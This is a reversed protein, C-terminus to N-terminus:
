FMHLTKFTGSLFSSTIQTWVSFLPAQSFTKTESLYAEPLLFPSYSDPLAEREWGISQVLAYKHSLTQSRTLRLYLSVHWTSNMSRSLYGCPSCFQSFHNQIGVQSVLSQDYAWWWKGIIKGGFNAPCCGLTYSHNVFIMLYVLCKIIEQTM